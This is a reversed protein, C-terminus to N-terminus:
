THQALPAVLLAPGPAASHAPHPLSHPSGPSARLTSPWPRCLASPSASFTTPWPLRSNHQAPPLVAHRTLCLIHHALPPLLQAPGPTASNAPSPCASRAPRSPALRALSPSAMHGQKAHLLHEEEDAEMPASLRMCVKQLHQTPVCAAVCGCAQMCAACMQASVCVISAGTPVLVGCSAGM